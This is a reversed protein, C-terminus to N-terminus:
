NLSKLYKPNTNTCIAFPNRARMCAHVFVGNFWQIMSASGDLPHHEESSTTSYIMALIEERKVSNNSTQTQCHETKPIGLPLNWVCACTGYVMQGPIRQEGGMPCIM